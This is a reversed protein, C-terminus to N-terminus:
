GVQPSAQTRSAWHMDHTHLTMFSKPLDTRGATTIDRVYNLFM